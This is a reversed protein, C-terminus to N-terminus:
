LINTDINNICLSIEIVFLFEWIHKLKNFFIVAIVIEEKM